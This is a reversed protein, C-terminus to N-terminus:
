WSCERGDNFKDVKLYVVAEIEDIRFIWGNVRLRNFAGPGFKLERISFPIARLAPFQELLEDLFEQPSLLELARICEILEPTM